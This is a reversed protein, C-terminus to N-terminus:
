KGAELETVKALVEQMQEKLKEVEGELALAKSFAIQEMSQGRGQGGQSEMEDDYGEESDDDYQGIPMGHQDGASEYAGLRDQPSPRGALQMMSVGTGDHSQYVSFNSAQSSAMISQPRRTPVTKQGPGATKELEAKVQEIQKSFSHTSNAIMQQIKNEDM